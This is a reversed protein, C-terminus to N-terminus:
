TITYRPQVIQTTITEKPSAGNLLAPDLLALRLLARPPTQIPISTRMRRQSKPELSLDQSKPVVTPLDTACVTRERKRESVDADGVCVLVIMGNTFVALAQGLSKAQQLGM